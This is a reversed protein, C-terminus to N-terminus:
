ICKNKSKCLNAMDLKNQYYQKKKVDVRGINDLGFSSQMQM